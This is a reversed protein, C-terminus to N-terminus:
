EIGDQQRMHSQCWKVRASDVMNFHCLAPQEFLNVQPSTPISVPQHMEKTKREERQKQEAMCKIQKLKEDREKRQKKKAECKEMTTMQKPEGKAKKNKNSFDDADVNRSGHRISPTTHTSPLYSNTVTITKVEPNTTFVAADSLPYSFQNWKDLAPRKPQVKTIDVAEDELESAEDELESAEDEPESAEDDLEGAHIDLRPM